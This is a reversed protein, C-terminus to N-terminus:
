MRKRKTKRAATHEMAPFTYKMHAPISIREKDLAYYAGQVRANQILSVPPMAILDYVVLKGKVDLPNLVCSAVFDGSQAQVEEVQMTQVFAKSSWKGLRIWRPLVVRERSVVFFEFVSEPALEKARGYNEPFNGHGGFREAKRHYTVQGMKWTLLLYSWQLPRAPTVYIGLANLKELDSAYTPRYSSCFYPVRLIRDNFLAYSLAYNHIFRETEYLTGMERTAFFLSDHLTLVARTVFM